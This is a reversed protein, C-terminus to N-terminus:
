PTYIQIFLNENFGVAGRWHLNEVTVGCRYFGEPLTNQWAAVTYTVEYVNQGVVLIVNAAQYDTEAGTSGIAELHFWTDMAHGAKQMNLWQTGSGTFTAHLTFEGGRPIVMAPVDSAAPETVWLSNVDFTGGPMQGSM